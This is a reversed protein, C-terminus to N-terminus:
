KIQFNELKDKDRTVLIKLLNKKLGNSLKRLNVEGIITIYCSSDKRKAIDVITKLTGVTVRQDSTAGKRYNCCSHWSM